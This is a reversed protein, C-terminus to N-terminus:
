QAAYKISCGIAKTFDPNPDNGAELSTIAMEVFKDEVEDPVKSNDDIAGIYRVVYNAGAKQILYVQPTRTAGYISAIKQDPDHLYPFNFGKDDARVIMNAYSDGPKQITDNSNIAIVPYGKKRYKKNLKIIRDEYLKSYPCTNCTFIVIFGKEDAFDAMSVYQGDVNLLKFDRAKDGVKYGEAFLTSAILILSLLGITRTKM